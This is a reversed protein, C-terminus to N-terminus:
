PLRPHGATPRWLADPSGRTDPRPGGYPTLKANSGWKPYCTWGRAWRRTYARNRRSLM